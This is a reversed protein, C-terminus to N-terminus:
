HTASFYLNNISDSDGDISTHPFGSSVDSPLWEVAFIQNGFPFTISGVVKESKTDFAVIGCRPIEHTIGPAYVKYKQIIRSVGIFAIDEHFCLGRTWSQLNLLPKFNGKEIYGFEGAGSNNVWLRGKHLKASHPRTLGRAAVSRTKGSFIVGTNKVPFQLHGPKYRRIKESSATFYSAQLTRGAAISNLQLHNASLDPEGNKKTTAEPFWCLTETEPSSLDAKIIGNIGVSNAYLRNGIYALDHFYYSGPYYKERVPMLPRHGAFTSGSLKRETCGAMPKLEVLKNPNRTCAIVISNTKRHIAIGTPHPMPLFSQYLQNGRVSLALMLNEYERSVLLTIKHEKLVDKFRGEIRYELSRADLGGQEPKFSIVELPDRITKAQKEIIKDLGKM